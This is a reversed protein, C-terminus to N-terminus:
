YEGVSCSYDRLRGSFQSLLLNVYWHSPPAWSLRALLRGVTTPHWKGGRATPVNRRTLEATIARVTTHGAEWKNALAGKGARKRLLAGQRGKAMAAVRLPGCLRAASGDGDDAALARRALGDRWTRPGEIHAM